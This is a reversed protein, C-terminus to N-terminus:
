LGHSLAWSAAQTRNSIELKSYVNTLHFKVTQETVWLETAIAKNTLGREVGKMVELERPTLRADLVATDIDIAPLGLAHYATGEVAQRIASALDRPDVSKVIYGCAGRKFASQIQEPDAGMSCMVVHVEPYRAQLRDLCTLGDLGPMRVDLLVVEAHTQGVLPVVETGHHAEAVIEFGGDLELLRRVGALLLPHDDAILIRM